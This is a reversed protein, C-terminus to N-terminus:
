KQKLLKEKEKVGQTMVAFLFSRQQRINKFGVEEFLKRMEAVSNVRVCGPEIREFLRHLFNGFFNIDVVAVKGGKKTVRRMEELAKKQQPYHHFAETSIVYAFSDQAFPLREAEGQRLNIEAPLKKRAKELMNESLDIGSLNRKGQKWLTLLLEGTGCSVDLIKLEPPESKLQELVPRQFRKMWFQFPAWDYSRSWRRFLRLNEAKKQESFPIAAM